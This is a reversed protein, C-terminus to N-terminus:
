AIAETLKANRTENRIEKMEITLSSGMQSGVLEWSLDRKIEKIFATVNEKAIAYRVKM